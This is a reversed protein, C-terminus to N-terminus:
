LNINEKDKTKMNYKLMTGADDIGFIEASLKKDSLPIWKKIKKYREKRPNTHSKLNEFVKSNIAM